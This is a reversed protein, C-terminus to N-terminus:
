LPCFFFSSSFFTFSKQCSAPAVASNGCCRAELQPRLFLVKVRTLEFETMNQSSIYVHIYALSLKLCWVSYAYHNCIMSQSSQRFELYLIIKMLCKGNFQPYSILFLFKYINILFESKWSHNSTTIVKKTFILFILIFVLSWEWNNM